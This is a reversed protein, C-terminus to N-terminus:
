CTYTSEHSNSLNLQFMTLWGCEMPRAGFSLAQGFSSADALVGNSNPGSVGTLGNTYTGSLSISFAFDIKPTSMAAPAEGRSLIAPGAYQGFAPLVLGPLALGFIGLWRLQKM